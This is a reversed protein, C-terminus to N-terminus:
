AAKRVPIPIVQNPKMTRGPRFGPLATSRQDMERTSGFFYEDLPYLGYPQLERFVRGLKEEIRYAEHFFAGRELELRRCCMKWDAGLLYHFTFIQHESDTLARKAVLLFDAAYEEDKRGWSFRHDRGATYELTTKGCTAGKLSSARFRNYCRRFIKRLVCRCPALGHCSLLLGTGRCQSCRPNALGVTESRNWNM